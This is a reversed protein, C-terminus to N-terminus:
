LFDRLRALEMVIDGSLVPGMLPPQPSTHIEYLHRMSAPKAVYERICEDLSGEVVLYPGTPGDTRREKNLSPWKRLTAPANFDVHPEAMLARRIGKPDATINGTVTQELVFGDSAAVLPVGIRLHRVQANSNLYPLV